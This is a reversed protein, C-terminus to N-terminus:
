RLLTGRDASARWFEVNEDLEQLCGLFLEGVPEARVEDWANNAM